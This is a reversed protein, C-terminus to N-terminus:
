APTVEPRERLRTNERLGFPLSFFFTSGKGEQSEVRIWGGHAEVIMKCIVLGLGTGKHESTKGSTTQRYKEFLSGIEDKPIGVGTDSVAIEIGEGKQRAAIEISGGTDTFKLANSLLNSLVQELRRPDAIIEPLDADIRCKLCIGKDRTRVQYNDIAGDILSKLNVSENSLNIHGAELKSLDLFDNVLDLMSRANNQLRCLWKKQDDNTAGFLGAILMEVVAIVNSLPSRLDHALMATFDAQSKNASQLEQAQRTTQGYLQAKQVAVGVQNGITKLLNIEEPKFKRPTRSALQIIGLVEDDVRIPVIILSEIGEAKFTKFGPCTQVREEICPEEFLRDAFNAPTNGAARSLRRHRKTSHSDRYGRTAALELTEGAADLLRINGLDFCGSVMAQELITDLVTKLDLSGLITESIRGLVLLERNREKLTEEAKHRQIAYRVARALLYGDVQGKVLYDQAGQQVAQVAVEEDNLGTMVVIPPVNKRRRLRAINEVGQADPLSLDLLIVGFTQTELARLADGFRSVHVLDFQVQETERLLEELLRADGPSDEILLIKIPAVTM